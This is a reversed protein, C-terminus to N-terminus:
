NGSLYKAQNISQEDLTTAYHAVGTDDHLYYYYTNPTPNLTANISIMGPNCIPTPPFGLRTYTNYPQDFQTENFTIAKKWDKYYYLLTADVNLFWGEDYRRWLIDSIVPSDQTDNAEREILSAMKVQEYTLTNGTKTIYNDVLIKIVDEASSDLPLLYKDPFLFGELDELGEINIGLTSIFVPDSTLSLFDEKSFVNGGSKKFETDIIEAIEDKRLGEQLIVWTEPIGGKQLTQAIDIINLNKPILFSGAQITSGLGSEKLYVKFFLKNNEKILGSEVLNLTISDVSEGSEVQFAVKETSDSNPTTLSKKYISYTILGAIIAIVLLIALIPILKKM